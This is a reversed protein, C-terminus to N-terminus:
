GENRFKVEFNLPELSFQNDDVLNPNEITKVRVKKDTVTVVYIWYDDHIKSKAVENRSIIFRNSNSSKVEIRRVSGDPNTTQIDYGLHYQDSVDKVMAVPDEVGLKKLRREEFERAFEEARRGALRNQKERQEWNVAKRVAESNTRSRARSPDNTATISIEEFVTETEKQDKSELWKELRNDYGLVWLFSHADLLNVNQSLKVELAQKVQGIVQLYQKYNAWSCNHSLRFEVGVQRFGHEFNTPSIPLYERDNKLFFLFAIIPYKKNILDILANFSVEGHQNSKFLDFLVKEFDNCAKSDDLAEIFIAHQESGEGARRRSDVLNNGKLEFTEIIKSLIDGKGIDGEKWSEIKLIELSKERIEYKYHERFQMYGSAFDIFPEDSESLVYDLFHGYTVDFKRPSIRIESVEINNNAFDSKAMSLLRDFTEKDIPRVADRWYNSEKNEPIKEIYAGDMKFPIALDFKEFDIIDCYYEKKKASEDLRSTGIVGAGFYHPDNSLRSAEFKKDKIRGNYYIVNTGPTLINKYKAPYNYREGTADDWESIDNEVIIAYNM